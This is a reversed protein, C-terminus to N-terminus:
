RWVWTCRAVMSFTTALDPDDPSPAEAICDRLNERRLLRRLDPPEFAELLMLADAAHLERHEAFTRGEACRWHTPLGPRGRGIQEILAQQVARVRDATEADPRRRLHALLAPVVIGGTIWGREFYVGDGVEGEGFRFTHVRPDYRHVISIALRDAARAVTPDRDVALLAELELLPWAYDRALEQRGEGMPPSAALARGLNRAAALHGDDALLLGVWLLGQLWAHGPAPVGSRHDLGHPFPLGTRLDLDRDRLHQAARAAMAFAERHDLAVATRLLALTTDFELNTVVQGSRMFDGAGRAGPLEPLREVLGALHKQVFAAARGGAPLLRVAEFVRRPLKCVVEARRGAAESWCTRAEGVTYVEGDVMTPVTFETRVCEDVSGDCWRWRMRRERGCPVVVEEEERVFAPGCGDACEAAGGAVVRANGGGTGGGASSAGVIALEVWVPDAVPGGIPLRRWQLVGRGQLRLGQTLAVAPLPVGFRVPHGDLPVTLLGQLLPTCLLSLITM